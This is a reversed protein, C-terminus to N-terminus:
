YFMTKESVMCLLLFNSHIVIMFILKPRMTIKIFFVAFIFTFFSILKYINNAQM